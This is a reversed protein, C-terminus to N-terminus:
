GVPPKRVAPAASSEAKAALLAQLSNRADRLCKAMLQVAAAHAEASELDDPCEKSDRGGSGWGLDFDLDLFSAGRQRLRLTGRVSDSSWFGHPRISFNVSVYPPLMDMGDDSELGRRWEGDSYNDIAFRMGADKFQKEVAAVVSILASSSIM